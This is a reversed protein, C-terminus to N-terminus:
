QKGIVSAIVALLEEALAKKVMYASAGSAEAARRYEELDYQSLIIVSVGPLTRKLCDTTTLGNMGQMRVDMLVVDPHLAEALRVAERGDEAEAVVEVAAHEELLARLGKRVITHDEALLLRIKPM